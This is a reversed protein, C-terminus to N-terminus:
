IPSSATVRGWNLRETRDKCSSLMLTDVRSAARAASFVMSASRSQTERM